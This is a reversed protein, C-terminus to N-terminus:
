SCERCYTDSQRIRQPKVFAHPLDHRLAGVETEVPGLLLQLLLAGITEMSHIFMM